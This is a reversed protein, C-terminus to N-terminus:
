TELLTTYYEYADHFTYIGPIDMPPVDCNALSEIIIILQFAQLSDLGVISYLDDYPNVAQSPEIELLSVVQTCFATLELM